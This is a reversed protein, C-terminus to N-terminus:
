GERVLERWLKPGGHHIRRIRAKLDNSLAATAALALRYPSNM